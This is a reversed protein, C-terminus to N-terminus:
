NREDIPTVDGYVSSYNPHPMGVMIPENCEPCNIIICLKNIMNNKVPNYDCIIKNSM